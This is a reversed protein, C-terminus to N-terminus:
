PLDGQSVRSRDGLEELRGPVLYLDRKRHANKKSKSRNRITLGPEGLGIAAREESRCWKRM